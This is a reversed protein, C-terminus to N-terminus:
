ALVLRTSKQHHDWHSFGEAGHGDERQEESGTARRGSRPGDCYGVLQLRWRIFRQRHNNGRLTHLDILATGLLILGPLEFPGEHSGLGIEEVLPAVLVALVVGARVPLRRIAALDGSRHFLAGVGWGRPRDRPQQEARPGDPTRVACEALDRADLPDVRDSTDSRLAPTRLCQESRRDSNIVGRVVVEEGSLSVPSGEREVVRSAKVQCTIPEGRLRVYIPPR